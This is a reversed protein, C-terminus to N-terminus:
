TEKQVVVNWEVISNDTVIGNAVYPDNQVFSEAADKQTFFFFAGTPDSGPPGFPGGSLCTGDQIMSKALEIHGQRFPGRKELVDTVYKYQLVYQPSPQM